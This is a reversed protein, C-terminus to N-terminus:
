ARPATEGSRRQPSPPPGDFQVSAGTDHSEDDACNLYVRVAGDGYQIGTDRSILDDSQCVKCTLTRRRALHEVRNKQHRTLTITPM